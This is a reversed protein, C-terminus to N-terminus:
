SAHQMFGHTDVEVKGLFRISFLTQCEVSNGGFSLM